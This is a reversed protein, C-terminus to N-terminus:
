EAETKEVKAKKAKKPKFSDIVAKDILLMESIDAAKVGDEFLRKIRKQENNNAGKKFSM